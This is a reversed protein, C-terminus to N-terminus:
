ASVHDRKILLQYRAGCPCEHCELQENDSPKIALRANSVEIFDNVRASNESKCSPCVRFRDIHESKTTPRQGLFLGTRDFVHMNKSAETDVLWTTRLIESSAM